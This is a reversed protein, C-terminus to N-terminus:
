LNCKATRFSYKFCFFSFRIGMSYNSHYIKSASLMHKGIKLGFRHIMPVLQVYANKKRKNGRWKRHLWIRTKNENLRSEDLAILSIAFILLPSPPITDIMLYKQQQSINLHRMGFAKCQREIREFHISFPKSFLNNGLRPPSSSCFSFCFLFGKYISKSLFYFLLLLFFGVYILRHPIDM